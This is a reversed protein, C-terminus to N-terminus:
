KKTFQVMTNKNGRKKNKCFASNLIAVDCLPSHKHGPVTPRCRYFHGAHDDYQDKTHYFTGKKLM